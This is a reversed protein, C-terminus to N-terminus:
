IYWKIPLALGSVTRIIKIDSKMNGNSARIINAKLYLKGVGPQVIPMPTAAINNFSIANSGCDTWQLKTYEANLIAPFISFVLLLILM